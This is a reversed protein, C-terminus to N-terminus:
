TSSATHSAVSGLLNEVTHVQSRQGRVTVENINFNVVIRQGRVGAKSNTTARPGLSNTPTFGVHPLCIEGVGCLSLTKGNTLCCLLELGEGWLKRNFVNRLSRSSICKAHTNFSQVVHPELVNNVDM